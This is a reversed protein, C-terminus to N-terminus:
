ESGRALINSAILTLWLVFEATVDYVFPQFSAPEEAGAARGPGSRDPTRSVAYGPHAPAPTLAFWGAATQYGMIQRAVRLAIERYRAEGTSRYLMSCSWGAKGSSPVDWPEAGRSQFAFLWEALDSFRKEGTSAHLLVAFAFPLGVAFWRQKPQAAQVVRWEALEPPFETVLRGEDDLTAYFRDSPAPQMEGMRILYDGARVAAAVQGTALCAVGCMSTSMSDSRTPEGPQTKISYFGGHDPNQQSLLFRLAPVAIEYRDLKQAGLVAYASSYHRAISTHLPGLRPELDGDPTLFKRQVHTLLRHAADLHGTSALAWSGKYYADYVEADLQRWNGAATQQDLLWEAGWRASALCASVTDIPNDANM